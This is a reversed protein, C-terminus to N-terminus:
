IEKNLKKLINDYKYISIEESIKELGVFLTDNLKFKLCMEKEFDYFPCSKNCKMEKCTKEGMKM